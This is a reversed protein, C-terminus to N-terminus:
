NCQMKVNKVKEILSQHVYICQKLFIVLATIYHHGRNFSYHLNSQGLTVQSRRVEAAIFFFFLFQGGTVDTIAVTKFVVM